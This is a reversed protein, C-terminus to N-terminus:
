LIVGKEQLRTIAPWDYGLELMTSAIPGLQRITWDLVKIGELEAPKGDSM